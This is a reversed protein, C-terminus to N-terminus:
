NGFKYGLGTGVTPLWRQLAESTPRQWSYGGLLARQVPQTSGAGLLAALSGYSALDTFAAAGEVSGAGVNKLIDGMMLRPATGSEGLNERLVSKGARSLDQLLAAGRAFKARDRATDFTKVANSLSVPTILGDADPSTVTARQIRKFNAYKDDIQSVLGRVDDPLYNNIHDSIISDAELLARGKLGDQGTAKLMQAGTSGLDNAVSQLLEAPIKGQQVNPFISQLRDMVIAKTIQKTEDTLEPHRDISNAIQQVLPQVRAGFIPSNSGDALPIMHGSLASRYAQQFGSALNDIAEFGGEGGATIGLEPAEARAYVATRWQDKPRNRALRTFAGSLPLATTTEEARRIAMGLADQEIGQGLSPVVGEAMLAQAQKSPNFGRVARGLGYGAGAGLASAGGAILRDETDGPTAAASYATAFAPNMALFPALDGAVAGADGMDSNRKLTASLLAMKDPSLLPMSAFAPNKDMGMARSAGQLGEMIGQAQHALSSGAGSLFDGWGGTAPEPFAQMQRLQEPIDDAPILGYDAPNIEQSDEDAPILGYDAPNIDQPGTSPLEDAYATGLPSLKSLANKFTNVFRDTGSQQEIGGPLSTWTKSLAQGILSIKRDDGSQLDEFLDRGTRRQYDEKALEIAAADQSEPSFDQLGLRSKVKDWTPALFQYRGAASSTRGTNPGRRIPVDIRPHDSFDDFTKGGYIVNYGPSETSAITDLLARTLAYTSM